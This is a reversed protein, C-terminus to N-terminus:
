LGQLLSSYRGKLQSWSFSAMDPMPRFSNSNALFTTLKAVADETNQYCFEAEFIEPYVLRDPVLPICGLAVAEMVALGQFEHHATSIVVDAQRVWQYYDQKSSAYGDFEIMSSFERQLQLWIKPVNRFRQGLLILKLNPAKVGSKAKLKAVLSVLLQYFDDIGKDYEVRHNWLITVSENLLSKEASRTSRAQFLEDELPVPLVVSKAELEPVIHLSIHDPLKKILAKVGQYFSRKNYRSNFVIQDAALAGYLNVMAPDISEHQDSSIPYAFQNEHFYVILRSQGLHPFLGRLTTIDVMSTALVLDYQQSLVDKESLYWSIPNGRIRWRFYRPPLTLVHWEFEPFQKVLEVRWRKHSDVDYASLLLIRM